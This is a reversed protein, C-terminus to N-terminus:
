KSKGRGMEVRERQEERGGEIRSYKETMERERALMSLSM